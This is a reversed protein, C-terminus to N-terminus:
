LRERVLMLLSMNDVAADVAALTATGTSQLIRRAYESQEFKARLAEVLLRRVAPAAAGGNGAPLPWLRRAEAATPALRIAESAADTLALNAHVYHTPSPFHQHNLNFGWETPLDGFRKRIADMSAETADGQCWDNSLWALGNTVNVGVQNARQFSESLLTQRHREQSASASAISPRSPVVATSASASSSVSANSQEASPSASNANYQFAAAALDIVAPADASFQFLRWFLTLDERTPAALLRTPVAVRTIKAGPRASNRATAVLCYGNPEICCVISAMWPLDPGVREQFMKVKDGPAFPCAAADATHEDDDGGDEDDDNEDGSYVDDEIDSM